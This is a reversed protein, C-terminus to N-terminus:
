NYSIHGSDISPDSSGHFLVYDEASQFYVKSQLHALLLRGVNSELLCRTSVAITARLFQEIEANVRNEEEM